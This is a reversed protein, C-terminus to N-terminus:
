TEEEKTPTPFFRDKMSEYCKRLIARDEADTIEEKKEFVPVYFRGKKNSQVQLGITLRFDHLYTFRGQQTLQKRRYAIYRLFEKVIPLAAGHFILWFPLEVPDLGLFAISAKCVPPKTGNPDPEGAQNRWQAYPCHLVLKGEERSSCRESKPEQGTNSLIHDRAPFYGTNSWCIREGTFDDEAFLSRTNFQALFVVNELKPIEEGTITNRFMGPTAGEIQCSAQIIKQRPISPEDESTIGQPEDPPTAEETIREAEDSLPAKEESHFMGESELRARTQNITEDELRNEQLLTLEELKM